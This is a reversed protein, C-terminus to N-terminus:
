RSFQLKPISAAQDSQQGRECNIVDDIDFEIGREKNARSSHELHLFPCDTDARQRQPMSILPNNKRHIWM